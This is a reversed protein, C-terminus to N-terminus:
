NILGSNVDPSSIAAVPHRSKAAFLKHWATTWRTAITTATTRDIEFRGFPHVGKEVKPVVWLV